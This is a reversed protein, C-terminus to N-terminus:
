FLILISQTSYIFLLMQNVFCCIINEFNQQIKTYANKHLTYGCQKPLINVVDKCQFKKRELNVCLKKEQTCFHVIKLTLIYM